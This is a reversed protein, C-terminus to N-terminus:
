LDLEHRLKELVGDLNNIIDNNWFRLVKIGLANLFKTRANDYEINEAHQGGDIEIAINKSHCFFDVVYRDISYQRKFKLGFFRKARIQNWFITEAETQTNRLARRYPLARSNNILNPM